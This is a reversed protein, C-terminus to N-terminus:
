SRDRTSDKSSPLPHRTVNPGLKPGSGEPLTYDGAVGRKVRVPVLWGLTVAKEKASRIQKESWGPLTGAAAMARRDVAFTEGRSVRAGHELELRLMLSVPNGADACLEEIRSRSLNVHGGSHSFNRGEEQYSWASKAVKVVEADSLPPDTEDNRTRAVDLLAGFDDVHHAARLCQSFLWNNRHGEAIRPHDVATKTFFIQTINIRPLSALTTPDFQGEVLSYARNTIPNRSPPVIVINGGAKIEVPLGDTSRLDIARVHPSARYFAQYGGRGATQTILPTEGFRKLMQKLLSPDDIDLVNLDSPGTVLAVNAYPFKSAVSAIAAGKLPRRSYGMLLPVKGDRGGTPTPVLGLGSYFAAVEAFAGM